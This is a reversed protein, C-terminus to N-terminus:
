GEMLAEFLVESAHLVAGVGGIRAEEARVAEIFTLSVVRFFVEVARGFQGRPHHFVEAVAGVAVLLGYHRIGISGEECRVVTLTQTRTPGDMGLRLGGSSLGGTDFQLEHWGPTAQEGRDPRSDRIGNGLSFTQRCRIPASRISM